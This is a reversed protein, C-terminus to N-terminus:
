VLEHTFNAPSEHAFNTYDWFVNLKSQCSSLMSELWL